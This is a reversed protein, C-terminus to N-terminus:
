IAWNLPCMRAAQARASTFKKCFGNGGRPRSHPLEKFPWCPRRVQAESNETHSRRSLRDSITSPFRPRSPLCRSLPAHFLTRARVCTCVRGFSNVCRTCVDSRSRRVFAGPFLFSTTSFVVIDAPRSLLHRREDINCLTRHSILM